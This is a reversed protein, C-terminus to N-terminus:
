PVPCGLKKAHARAEDATLSRPKAHGWRELVKGYHQCASEKHDAREDLRGLWLQAFIWDQPRTLPTSCDRVLSELFGRVEPLDRGGVLTARYGFRVLRDSTAVIREDDLVRLAQQAEAPTLRWAAAYTESWARLPDDWIRSLNAFATRRRADAEAHSMEGDREAPPIFTGVVNDPIREHFAPQRRLFDAAVRAAETREGAEECAIVLAHTPLFHDSANTSASMRHLLDRAIREAEVFDGQFLALATDHPLYENDPMMALVSAALLDPEGFTTRLAEIPAGQAALMEALGDRDERSDPDLLLARRADSEAEACAGSLSHVRRLTQVCTLARSNEDLCQSVIRIAQDPHNRALGRAKLLMLPV